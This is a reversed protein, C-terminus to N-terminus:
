RDHDDGSLHGEWLYEGLRKVPVRDLGMKELTLGETWYDRQRMVCGLHILAETSPMDVGVWRGIEVLPVLGFGVDENVYRHDLSDPAKIPKNPESERLAQYMDGSRLAAESTLGAEYFYEIFTMVRMNLGAKENLARLVAIREDDMSQM